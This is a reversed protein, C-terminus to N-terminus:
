SKSADVEQADSNDTLDMVEGAPKRRPPWVVSESQPNRPATNFVRDTWLSSSPQWAATPVAEVIEPEVVVPEVPEPEIVEPVVVEPVVVEEEVPEPEVV